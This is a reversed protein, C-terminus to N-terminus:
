KIRCQGNACSPGPTYGIDRPLWAEEGGNAPNPYTRKTPRSPPCRGNACGQNQNQAVFNPVKQPSTGRSKVDRIEESDIRWSDDVKKVFVKSCVVRSNSSESIMYRVGVEITEDGSSIVFHDLVEMQSDGCIFFNEAARRIVSARGPTFCNMYDRFKGNSCASSLTDFLSKVIEEDPPPSLMKPRGSGADSPPPSIKPKDDQEFSSLGSVVDDVQDNFSSMKPRGDAALCVSTLVLFAVFCRMQYRRRHIM